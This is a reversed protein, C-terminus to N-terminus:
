KKAARFSGAVGGFISDLIGKSYPSAAITAVVSIVTLGTIWKQAVLEM